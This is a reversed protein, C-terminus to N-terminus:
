NACLRKTRTSRDLASLLGTNKRSDYIGSFHRHEIRSIAGFVKTPVFTHDITSSM